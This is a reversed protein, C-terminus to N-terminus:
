LHSSTSLPALITMNDPKCTYQINTYRPMNRVDAFVPHSWNTSWTEMLIKSDPRLLYCYHTGQIEEWCVSPREVIQCIASLSSVQTFPLVRSATLQLLDQRIRCQYGSKQLLPVGCGVGGLCSCKRMATLFRQTNYRDIDTKELLLVVGTYACM